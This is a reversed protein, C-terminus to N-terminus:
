FALLLTFTYDAVIKLIILNTNAHVKTLNGIGVTLPQISRLIKLSYKSMLEKRMNGLFLTSVRSSENALQLMVTIMIAMTTVYACALIHILLPIKGFLRVIYFNGVIQSLLAFFLGPGVVPQSLTMDVRLFYIQLQRYFRMKAHGLALKRRPDSKVQTIKVRKISADLLDIYKCVQHQPITLFIVSAHGVALFQYETCCLVICRWICLVVFGWPHDLVINPLSLECFKRTPDIDLIVGVIVGLPIFATPFVLVIEALLTSWYHVTENKIHDGSIALIVSINYERKFIKPVLVFKAHPKSCNGEVMKAMAGLPNIANILVRPHFAMMWMMSILASCQMAAYIVIAKRLYDWFNHGVSEKGLIIEWMQYYFTAVIAFSLIPTLKSAAIHCKNLRTRGHLKQIRREKINVHFRLLFSVKSFVTYFKNVIVWQQRTAM